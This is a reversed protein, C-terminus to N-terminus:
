VIEDVSALDSDSAAGKRPDLGILFAASDSSATAVTMSLRMHTFGGNIDLEDAFLDILAQKNDDSGAKTLQTIAKGTLDKAGTGSSDQAQELKADITGASGMDGAAIVALVAGWDAMNVWATTATGATNLDPDIVGVIACRASPKLNSNM